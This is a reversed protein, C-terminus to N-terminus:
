MLAAAAVVAAFHPLEKSSLSHGRACPFRNSIPAGGSLILVFYIHIVCVFIVCAKLWLVHVDSATILKHFFSQM